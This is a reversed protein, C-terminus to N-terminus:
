GRDSVFVVLDDSFSATQESRAYEQDLLAISMEPVSLYRWLVVSSVGVAVLLSATIALTLVRAPRLLWHSVDLRGPRAPARSSSQEELRTGLRQYLGNPLEQAPLSRVITGLRKLQSLHLRCTSCGGLHKELALRRGYPLYGDLFPSLMRTARRCKM